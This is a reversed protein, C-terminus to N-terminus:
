ERHKPTRRSLGTTASTSSQTTAWGTLFTLAEASNSGPEATYVLVSQDAGGRVDFVQFDLVLDGAVEHRFAKRGQRQARVRHDSWWTRFDTDKVSLEGVLRALDPDDPYRAADM